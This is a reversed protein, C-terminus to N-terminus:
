AEDSYQIARYFFDGGGSQEFMRVLIEIGLNFVPRVLQAVIYSSESAAYSEIIHRIKEVAMEIDMLALSERGTVYYFEARVRYAKIRIMENQSYEMSHPDPDLINIAKNFCIQASDLDGINHYCEGLYIFSQGTQFNGVGRKETYGSVAESLYIIAEQDRDLKRLYMGYNRFTLNPDFHTYTKDSSAMPLLMSFLSDATKNLELKVACLAFNNLVMGEQDETLSLSPDHILDQCKNYCSQYDMREIDIVALNNRIVFGASRDSSKVAYSLALNNCYRSLMMDGLAMYTGAKYLYLYTFYRENGPFHMYDNIIDDALDLTEIYKSSNILQSVSDTYTYLHNLSM